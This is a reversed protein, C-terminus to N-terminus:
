RTLLGAPLPDRTPLDRDRDFVGADRDRSFPAAPPTDPVTSPDPPKTPDRLRNNVGRRWTEQAQQNVPDVGVDTSGFAIAAGNSDLALVEVRYRQFVQTDGPCPGSWDPLAGYPILVPDGPARITWDRPTQLLVSVNMVRIRYTATKEPAHTVRIPPSQSGSCMNELGLRVGIDLPQLGPDAPRNPGCAAALGVLGLALGIRNVARM